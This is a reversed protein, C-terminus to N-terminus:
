KRVLNSKMESKMAYMREDALDYVYESEFRGNRQEASYKDALEHRFAIGYAAELPIPLEARRKKQLEAMKALALDMEALHESRVVMIFEDGGLRIATGIGDFAEKLAQAFAKILADGMGHGYNDNVYKLGNLDISVIAYDSNGRDLVEFIQKCKARNFLGTLSDLYAINALLDREAKHSQLRSLHVVFSVMLLLVFFFTGMPLLSNDSLIHGFMETQNIKYRVLELMAFGVFVFCGVALIKGSLDMRRNYIAGCVLLAVVGIGVYVHYVWLTRSFHVIDM